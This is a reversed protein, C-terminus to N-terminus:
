ILSLTTVSPVFLLPNWEVVPVGTPPALGLEVLEVLM